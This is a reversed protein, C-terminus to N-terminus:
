SIALWCTRRSGTTSSSPLSTPTSACASIASSAFSFATPSITSSIEFDGVPGRSYIRPQLGRSTGRYRSKRETSAVSRPRLLESHLRPLLGANLCQQITQAGDRAVASIVAIVKTV